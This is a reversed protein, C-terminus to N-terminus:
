SIIIMLTYDLLPSAFYTEGPLLSGATDIAVDNNAFKLGGWGIRHAFECHVFIMSHDLSADEGLIIRSFEQFSQNNLFRRVIGEMVSSLFQSALHKVGMQGGTLFHPNLGGDSNVTAEDSDRLPHNAWPALHRGPGLGINKINGFFPLTPQNSTL